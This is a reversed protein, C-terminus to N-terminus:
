FTQPSFMGPFWDLNLLPIGASWSTGALLLFTFIIILAMMGGILVAATTSVLSVSATAVLHYIHVCYIIVFIAVVLLYLLLFVYLPLSIM